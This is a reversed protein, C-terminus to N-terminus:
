HRGGTNGLRKGKPFITPSFKKTRNFAPITVAEIQGTFHSQFHRTDEGSLLGLFGTCLKGGKRGRAQAVIVLVMQNHLQQHFPGKLRSSM